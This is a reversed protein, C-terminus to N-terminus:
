RPFAFRQELEILFDRGDTPLPEFFTRWPNEFIDYFARVVTKSTAKYQLGTYYGRENQTTGNSNGFGFGHLNQFDRKYDRFLFALQTAGFDWLAAAILATGGNRSRAMEGFVTAEGSSWQWDVGAVHNSKGRFEFRKRTLNPANIIKDFSSYYGTAGISLSQAPQYRIRAGVVSETVVDKKQCELDNRHFGSSFFGSVQTDSALTADLQSQSFFTITQFKESNFAVSGGFFAANEDVTTYGRVGRAKKRIPFIVNSSKSFGYPGWLVLGQGAELQYNGFLLSLRKSLNAKLYFLRLDDLRGEGSDKELLLGGQIKDTLQFRIRNYIKPSSNEYTGDSFGRSKELRDTLRM